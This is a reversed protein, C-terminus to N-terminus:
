IWGNKAAVAMAQWTHRLNLRATLGQVRLSAAGRTICVEDAIEGFTKGEALGRLVELEKETPANVPRPNRNRWAM